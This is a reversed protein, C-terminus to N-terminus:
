TGLQTYAYLNGLEALAPVEPHMGPNSTSGLQERLHTLSEDLLQKARAANHWVLVGDRKVIRGNVLVTHVDGRQTRFVNQKHPHAEFRTMASQLTKRAIHRRRITM